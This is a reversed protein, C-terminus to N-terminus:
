ALWEPLSDLYHDLAVGAAAADGALLARAIAEHHHRVHAVLAQPRERARRAPAHFLLVPMLVELFLVLAEDGTWRALASPLAQLEAASVPAQWSAERALLERLGAAVEPALAGGALLRRVCSHELARRTELMSEWRLGRYELYVGAVYLVADLGPATIVLGGGGGRRMQVVGQTELLRVAERFVNRSVGYRQMLAPESGLVQGLPWGMRHIEFALNRALIEALKGQTPRWPLGSLRAWRRVQQLQAAGLAFSQRDPAPPAGAQSPTVEAAPVAMPEGLWSERERRAQERFQDVRDAPVVVTITALGQALQRERWAATREAGAKAAPRERM